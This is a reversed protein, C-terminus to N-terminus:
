VAGYQDGLNEMGWNDSIFGGALRGAIGGLSNASIYGGVAVMLARPTFEEAMYAVAVAAFGALSAGM